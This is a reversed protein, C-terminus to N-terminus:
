YGLKKNIVNHLPEGKRFREFNDLFVRMAREKWDPTSDACHPSLLLNELHYFAHGEPLPETEFVDLAAGRIRGSELARLLPTEQVVPGRGINILVANAKMAALEPEGILGRTQPTLPTTVAVYDSQALLEHKRATPFVQEAYHDGQSLEPRQRLALVRMGLARARQAVAQGIDGYGIIGLTQRNMEVISYPDWFGAMQNRIMRRFDRAFYLIAAIVFEALADTFVGRGNTVITSSEVVAPILVNDLGASRSHVWRVRPAMGWVEEFLPRKGGWNLIVSAQAATREFALPELGVALTTSEPLEELMALKPEAPNALVLVTIDDM